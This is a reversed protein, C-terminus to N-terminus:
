TLFEFIWGKHTKLRKHLCGSVHGRNLGYQRVFEAQNNSEAWEGTNENYAFFWRQKHIGHSISRRNNAQELSTSFKCNGLEYDGDNEIRDISKDEPCNGMDEYFNEFSYWRECVKIGRGGYDKYAKCNPNECRQIIGQWIKYIKTQSMGHVISRKKVTEKRLCGCSKVGRKQKRLNGSSVLCKNGCDCLCLWVVHTGSRKETPELATLRGFGQGTLDLM